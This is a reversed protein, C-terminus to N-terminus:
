SIRQYSDRLLRVILMLGAAIVITLLQYRRTLDSVPLRQESGDGSRVIVAEPRNYVFGGLGAPLPIVLSRAVPQIAREGQEIAQGWRLSGLVENSM